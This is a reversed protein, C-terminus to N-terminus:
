SSSSTKKRTGQSSSQRSSKSSVSKEGGGEKPLYKEIEDRNRVALTGDQLKVLYVEVEEGDPGAIDFLKELVELSKEV